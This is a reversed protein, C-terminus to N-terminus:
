IQAKLIAKFKRKVSSSNIFCEILKKYEEKKLTGIIHYEIGEVQYVDKLITLVYNDVQGGYVFTPQDFGWNNTTIVRNAEFHYCNFNIEDSNICGHKIEITSPVSDTRTPLSALVTNDNDNYLVIFYKPKSTNGNKFYFPDFYLIKGPSYMM